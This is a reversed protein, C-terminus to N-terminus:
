FPAPPLGRGLALYILFVPLNLADAEYAGIDCVAGFLPDGDLPRV